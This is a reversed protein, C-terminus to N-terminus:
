MLKKKYVFFSIYNIIRMNNLKSNIKKNTDLFLASTRIIVISSTLYYSWLCGILIFLAFGEAIEVTLDQYSAILCYKTIYFEIGYLIYTINEFLFFHFLMITSYQNIDFIGM